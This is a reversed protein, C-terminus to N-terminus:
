CAGDSSDILSRLVMDVTSRLYAPRDAPNTALLASLVVGDLSAVIAEARRRPETSDGRRVIEEVLVTLGERWATIPGSLSPNRAAELALESITIIFEPHVSWGLLLDTTAAIAADRGEDGGPDPLAAAMQKVDDNLKGAVFDTLATLLALRTRYYVSCTGEPLGAERDVARHTLGRMGSQGVVAIACTLLHEQRAQAGEPANSSRRRRHHHRKASVPM